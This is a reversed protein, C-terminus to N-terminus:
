SRNEELLFFGCMKIHKEHEIILSEFFPNLTVSINNSNQLYLENVYYDDSKFDVPETENELKYYNDKTDKWMMTIVETKSDPTVRKMENYVTGFEDQVVLLISQNEKLKEKMSYVLENMNSYDELESDIPDIKTPFVKLLSDKVEVEKGYKEMM